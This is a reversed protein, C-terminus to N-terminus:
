NVNVNMLIEIMVMKELSLAPCGGSCLYRAWCESCKPKEHVTRIRFPRKNKELINMTYTQIKECGYLRQCPYVNEDPGITVHGNGIHCPVFHLSRQSLSQFIDYYHFLFESEGNIIKQFIYKIYDSFEQNYLTIVDINEENFRHRSFCDEIGFYVSSFGLKKIDETMKIFNMKDPMVTARARFLAPRMKLYKELKAKLCNYSGSGDPFVRQADHTNKDGDISILLTINAEDVVKFIEDNMLTFNTTISMSIDLNENQRVEIVRDSVKKIINFNLLPEGGFFNISKRKGDVRSENILIEVAKLAIEQTMELNRNKKCGEFCYRCRLNCRSTLILTISDLGIKKEKNYSIVTAINEDTLGPHIAQIDKESPPNSEDIKFIGVSPINYLYSKNDVDIICNNKDIQKFM